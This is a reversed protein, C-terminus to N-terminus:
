PWTAPCTSSLGTGNCHGLTEHYHSIMLERVRRGKFLSDPICTAVSVSDTSHFLIGDRKTFFSGYKGPGDIVLKFFNDEKYGRCLVNHFEPPIGRHLEAEAPFVRGQASNTPPAIAAM